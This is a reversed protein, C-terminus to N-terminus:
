RFILAESSLSKPSATLTLSIRHFPSGTRQGVRRRRDAQKLRIKAVLRFYLVEEPLIAGSVIKRGRRDYVYSKSHTSWVLRYNRSSTDLFCARQYSHLWIWRRMQSFLRIQATQMLVLIEGNEYKKLIKGRRDVSYNWAEQPFNKIDFVM